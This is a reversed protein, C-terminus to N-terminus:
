DWIVHARNSLLGFFWSGCRIFGVRSAGCEDVVCVRFVIHVDGNRWLFPGRLLWRMERSVLRLSNETAWTKVIEGARRVIWWLAAAFLLALASSYFLIEM